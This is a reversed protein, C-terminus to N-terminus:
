LGVASAEAMICQLRGASDLFEEFAPDLQQGSLQEARMPRTKALESEGIRNITGMASSAAVELAARAPECKGDDGERLEELLRDTAMMKLVGPARRFWEMEKRKKSEIQLGLSLVAGDLSQPADLERDVYRMAIRAQKVLSRAETSSAELKACDPRKVAMIEGSMLMKTRPSEIQIIGPRSSAARFEILKQSAIGSRKWAFDDPVRQEYKTAFIKWSNDAVFRITVRDGDVRYLGAYGLVVGGVSILEVAEGAEGLHLIRHEEGLGCRYTGAIRPAERPGRRVENAL